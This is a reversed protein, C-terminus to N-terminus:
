CAVFLSDNFYLYPLHSISSLAEDSGYMYIYTYIRYTWRVEAPIGLFSLLEKLAAKHALVDGGGVLAEYRALM